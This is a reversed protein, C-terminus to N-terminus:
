ASLQSSDAQVQMPALVEVYQRIHRDHLFRNLVNERGAVALEHAHVPNNLLSSVAGGFADLDHPDDLLVGTCQDRIQERIGGVASAVVPRQKWMAETVTLGFGEQLSKQVVVSAHRQLANVIAANEEADDIPLSAIHVRKRLREPLASHAALLEALVQSGEPDDAISRADPGALMLDTNADLADLAGYVFGNMVGLHDKLRDWRSVQLVIPREPDPASGGDLLEARCRVWATDGTLRRYVPAADASGGALLGATVLIARVADGDLDQNKPAFPDISPPVVAIPRDVFVDPIYISSSFVLRDAERVLPEIFSWGQHTFDNPRDVGIHCRWAVACGHEKLPRVLGATQPDHLLVTTGPAILELLGPVNAALVEDYDRREEPGLVGGDGPSGHIFNHIRKTIAFFQADGEIVAWRAELGAGRVYSLMTRLMEAVGGGDATSNVCWIPRDAFMVKGIRVTEELFDWRQATLLRRWPEISRPVVAIERPEVVLQGRQRTMAPRLKSVDM